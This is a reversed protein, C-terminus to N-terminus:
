LKETSIGYGLTLIRSGLGEAYDRLYYVRWFLDSEGILHACTPCPELTSLLIFKGELRKVAQQRLMHMVLKQEAHMCGCKGQINLCSQGVPMPGNVASNVVVMPANVEWYNRCAAAVTVRRLCQGYAEAQVTMDTLMKKYHMM